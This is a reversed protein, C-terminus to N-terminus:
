PYIAIGREGNPKLWGRYMRGTNFPLICNGQADLAILGGEGGLRALELMAAQGAEFLNKQALRMQCSLEHGLSSRIFYEGHGTASVACSRNDAYTGAGILPSDGVRGFRKNTMGGTSTASALNNRADRAVAGVTGFSPPAEAHDLATQQKDRLVLLQQWRYDTFFYAPPEFELGQEQAFAEAGAGILLVHASHELVKRALQIPNKVGKVGAVAGASLTEGEMLAADMEIEGAHNFVSGKGANFYECNELEILAAQAMDLCSGGAQWVKLGAELSAALGARAGQERQESILGKFLTGAGGHVALIIEQHTEM